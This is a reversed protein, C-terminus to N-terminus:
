QQVATNFKKQEALYELMLCDNYAPCYFNIRSIGSEVLPYVLFKPATASASAIFFVFRDDGELQNIINGTYAMKEAPMNIGWHLLSTRLMIKELLNDNKKYAEKADAILQPKLAELMPIPKVSMLRALHFMIVPTTKYYVSLKNAHNLYDKTKIIQLLFDLSASDAKTWRLNYHQVMYLTNCLVCADLEVLMKKGFWVSYAAYKKYGRLTTTALQGDKNTYQQMLSHVIAAVSDPADLVLQMISTDDFDDAVHMMGNFVTLPGSRFFPKVTDNAGFNYTERGLRNKFKHAILKVRNIITDCIIQDAPSLQPRIRRLTLAIIGSYFINEDKNLRGNVVFKRYAPFVGPAFYPDHYAQINDLRLLLQHILSDNCFAKNGSGTFFLLLVIIGTSKRVRM